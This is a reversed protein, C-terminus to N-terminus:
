YILKVSGLLIKNLDMIELKEKEHKQFCPFDEM